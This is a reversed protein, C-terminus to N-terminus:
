DRDDGDPGDPDMDGHPDDFADGGMVEMTRMRRRDKAAEVAQHILEKVERPNKVNVLDLHPCSADSSYICVTGVGCMRQGLNMKLDIDRVRYLLVEESKLNLLGKELFIRDDSLSYKTFSLPMGMVHKRDQWKKEIPEMKIKAM